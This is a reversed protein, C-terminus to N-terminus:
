EDAEGQYIFTLRDATPMEPYPAYRLAQHNRLREEHWAVSFAPSNLTTLKVLNQLSQTSKKHEFAVYHWLTILLLSLVVLTLIFFNKNITQM